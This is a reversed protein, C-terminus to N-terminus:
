CFRFLILPKFWGHLGIIFRLLELDGSSGLLFLILCRLFSLLVALRYSM